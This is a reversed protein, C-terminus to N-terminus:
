KRDNKCTTNETFRVLKSNKLNDKSDAIFKIQNGKNLDSLKFCFDTEGERGWPATEYIIKVKNKEEFSRIFEIFAQKAKSDIGSGISIFSVNFRYLNQM